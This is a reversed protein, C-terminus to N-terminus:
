QLVGTLGETSNMTPCGWFFETIDPELSVEYQRHISM